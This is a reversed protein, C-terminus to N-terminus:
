RRIGHEQSTISLGQHEPYPLHVQRHTAMINQGTGQGSWLYSYGTPYMAGSPFTRKTFRQFGM